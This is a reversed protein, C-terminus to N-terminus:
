KTSQSSDYESASSGNVSKNVGAVVGHIAALYRAGEEIRERFPLRVALVLVADLHLIPSCGVVNVKAAVETRTKPSSGRYGM